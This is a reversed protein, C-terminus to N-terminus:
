SACADTIAQVEDPCVSQTGAKWAQITPCDLATICEAHAQNAAECVGNALDVSTCSVFCGAEASDCADQQDCSAQCAAALANNAAGGAGGSSAGAGGTGGSSAGAGGGGSSAGSGGTGDGDDDDGCAGALLLLAVALLGKQAAGVAHERFRTNHRGDFQLVAPTCGPRALAGMPEEISM